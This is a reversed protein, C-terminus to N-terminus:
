SKESPPLLAYEDVEYILLSPASTPCPPHGGPRRCGHVSHPNSLPARWTSYSPLMEGRSCLSPFLPLPRPTPPVRLQGEIKLWSEAKFKSAVM